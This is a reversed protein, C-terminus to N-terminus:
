DQLTMIWRSLRADRALVGPRPLEKVLRRSLAAYRRLYLRPLSPMPEGRRVYRELSVRGPFLRKTGREMLQEVELSPGDSLVRTAIFTAGLDETFSAPQLADVVEVPALDGVLARASWLALYLRDAVRSARAREAVADWDLDWRGAIRVADALQGLASEKRHIRDFSFHVLVHLVLDEPAPIRHAPPASSAVSREWLGDVEYEVRDDLLRHHLELVVAGDTRVLPFHHHSAALEQAHVADPAVRSRLLHYGLSAQVAAHARELDARPVLLDLDVMPRLGPHEYVAEVLAAGKLLVAPVDERALLTLVRDLEFQLNISRATSQRAAERLVDLVQDPVAVSAAPSRLHDWLLPGMRHWGALELVREWRIPRDEVDLLCRGGVATVLLAEERGITLV